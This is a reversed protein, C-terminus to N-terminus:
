DRMEVHHKSHRGDCTKEPYRRLIARTKMRTGTYYVLEPEKAATKRHRNEHGKYRATRMIRGAKENVSNWKKEPGTYSHFYAYLYLQGYYERAQQEHCGERYAEDQYGMLLGREFLLEARHGARYRV